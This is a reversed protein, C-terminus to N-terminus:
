KITPGKVWDYGIGPDDHAIRVEDNLDYIGSTVYLVLMPGNICKYGHAVGPPFKYILPSHNEGALFEQTVGFTKSEKRYDHLAVKATGSLMCTWQSQVKHGHWGKIIGAHVFSYSLQGFGERFTDDNVRILEQFFGREDVHRVLKKIVVGEIM